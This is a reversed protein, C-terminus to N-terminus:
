TQKSFQFHKSGLKLLYQVLTQWQISFYNIQFSNYLVHCALIWSIPLLFAWLRFLIDPKCNAFRPCSSWQFLSFSFFWWFDSPVPWCTCHSHSWIKTSSIYEQMIVVLLLIFYRGETSPYIICPLFAYKTQVLDWHMTSLDLIHLDNLLRRRTDEGGFILLRTGM